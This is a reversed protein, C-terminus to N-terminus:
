PLRWRTGALHRIGDSRHWYYATLITTDDLQESSPYGVDWDPGDDRLVIENEVDWSQGGDESLCARVGYPPRRHGYTCLIRGDRLLLIDAPSSGGCWIPTEEPASWTRGGDDSYSQFFNREETRMMGLLRGGPLLLIRLEHFDMEGQASAVTGIFEWNTGRDTSRAVWCRSSVDGAKKGNLPMLLSGDALEVIRGATSCDHFGPTKVKRPPEWTYGDQWSKTIFCGENACAMGLPTHELIGAMGQLEDKRSLPVFKYRFNSVILTGDSLQTITTGNGGSPDPTVQSHWTEGGDTSRILSTRTTPDCHTYFGRWLAERFVLVLSGDALKKLMSIPGCYSSENRYIVGVDMHHGRQM